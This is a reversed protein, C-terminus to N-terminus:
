NDKAIIEKIEADLNDNHNRIYKKIRKYICPQKMVFRKASPYEYEHNAYYAYLKALYMVSEEHRTAEYFEKKTPLPTKTLMKEEWLKATTVIGDVWESVCEEMKRIIPQYKPYCILFEDYDGSLFVEILKRLSLTDNFYHSKAVYYPSKIKVRNWNGDVVVYGEEDQLTNAVNVVEALSTFNYEQPKQIGINPNCEIFTINNRTGIHWIEPNEYRVVQQNYLSVLEFMYTYDKNLNDFDLHQAKACAMFLEGFTTTQMKEEIHPSVCPSDYANIMGNTSIWWKQGIKDYWLKMISGDLKMQVRATAWDIPAAFENGEVFFKWFPVCVAEFTEERLIVGRAEQVIPNSLDSDFLQYNFIIFGYDHKITLSYPAHKLLEEWNDKNQQIFKQLRLM